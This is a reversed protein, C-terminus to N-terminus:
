SDGPESTDPPRTLAPSQTMNKLQDAMTRMQDAQGVHREYEQRSGAIKEREAISRHLFEREELLALSHAIASEISQLQQQALTVEGFAHGTHCRYRENLGERIRIMSGNCEPCTLLSPEGLSSFEEERTRSGLAIEVETLINRREMAPEEGALEERVLSQLVDSMQSIKLSHDVAVNRSANRPMQPYQADDPSQVIAVGGCDKIAWLGASGDDLLGTLVVGIVRHGYEQAASRFLVDISPRAHCERPGSTLRIRGSQVMLHHGSVAFYGRCPVIREGDIANALPLASVRSAIEVLRSPGSDHMHIVVLVAAPLDAPLTALLSPIAEVGGLSAGIVIIDRHAM